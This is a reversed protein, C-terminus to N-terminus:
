AETIANILAEFAPIAKAKPDFDYLSQHYIQAKPIRTDQPITFLRYDLKQLTEYFAGHHSFSRNIMTCIIKDHTIHRRQAKRIQALEQSFLEIGDMSFYEPTLPTLVEDVAGIISRELQSFSPSCDFVGYAFGLASLDAVLFEFAKPQKSLQTEAFARLNGELPATPLLFLCSAAEILATDTEAIGKLVDALEQDIPSTLFWSSLNGQQDCDILATKHGKRALGAAVTGACSTKGTGGKQIHFALTQM